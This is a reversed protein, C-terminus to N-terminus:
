SVAELRHRLVQRAASLRSMVTGIPIGLVEAIEGYSLEQFDRLMIMERHAQSLGGLGDWVRRRTEAAEYCDTPGRRPDQFDEEPAMPRESARKRRRLVDLCANHAIRLLWPRFPRTGDFRGLNEFAKVFATQCLDLADEKNRLFGLALAYASERHEEFLRDYARPDGARCREVVQTDDM